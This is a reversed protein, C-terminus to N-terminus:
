PASRPQQRSAGVGRVGRVCGRPALSRETAATNTSRAHKGVPVSTGGRGRAAAVCAAVFLPVWLELGSPLRKPLLSSHHPRGGGATHGPGASKDAPARVRLGRARAPGDMRAPISRVAKCAPWPRPTRPAQLRSSNSRRTSGGRPQPPRPPLTHRTLVAVRHRRWLLELLDAGRQRRVYRLCVVAHQLQSALKQVPPVQHGQRRRGRSSPLTFPRAMGRRYTQGGWGVM